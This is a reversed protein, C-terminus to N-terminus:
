QGSQATQKPRPKQSIQAPGATWTVTTEILVSGPGGRYSWCHKSCVQRSGIPQCTQSCLKPPEPPKPTAEQASASSIAALMALLISVYRM